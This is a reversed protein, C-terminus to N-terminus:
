IENWKRAKWKTENTTMMMTNAWMQRQWTIKVRYRSFPQLWAVDMFWVFQHWAIRSLSNENKRWKERITIQNLKNFQWNCCSKYPFPLFLCFFFFSISIVLLVMVLLLTKFPIQFCWNRFPKWTLADSCKAMM